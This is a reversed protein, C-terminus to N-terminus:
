KGTAGSSPRSSPALAKSCTDVIAGIVAMFLLVVAVLVLLAALGGAALGTFCGSALAATTQPAAAERRSRTRLAAGGGLAAVLITGLVGAGVLFPVVGFDGGLPILLVVLGIGGLVGLVFLGGTTGRTDRRVDLQPLDARLAPSRHLPEECYPCIRWGREVRERCCPCVPAAPEAPPQPQVALNPNPVDALCRPCTLTPEQRDRLVRLTSGCSPCAAQRPM